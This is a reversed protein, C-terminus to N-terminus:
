EPGETGELGTRDEDNTPVACGHRLRIHGSMNGSEEVDQRYVRPMSHWRYGKDHAEIATALNSTRQELSGYEDRSCCDSPNDASVVLIVELGQLLEQDRQLWSSAMDNTSIGKEISFYVASNDTVLVLRDEPFLRKAEALADLACRLEKLYIHWSRQEESFKRSIQHELVLRGNSWRGLYWGDGSSSADSIM